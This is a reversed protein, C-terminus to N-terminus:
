KQPHNVRLWARMDNYNVDNQACFTRLKSDKNKKRGKKWTLFMAYEKSLDLIPQQIKYSSIYNKAVDTPQEEKSGSFLNQFFVKLANCKYKFYSMILQSHTPSSASLLREFLINNFQTIDSDDTGSDNFHIDTWANLYVDDVMTKDKISIGKISRKYKEYELSFNQHLYGKYIRSYLWFLYLQCVIPILILGLLIINQCKFAKFVIINDYMEPITWFRIASYIAIILIVWFTIWRWTRLFFKPLIWLVFILAQCYFLPVYHALKEQESTLSADFGIYVLLLICYSLIISGKRQAEGQIECYKDKVKNILEKSSESSLLFNYKKLLNEMETYYEPTWFNRCFDNNISMTVYVAGFFEIFSSFKEM